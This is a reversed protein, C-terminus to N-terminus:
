HPFDLFHDNTTLAEIYGLHEMELEIFRAIIELPLHSLLPMRVRTKM